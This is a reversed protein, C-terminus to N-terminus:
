DIEKTYDAYSIAITVHTDPLQQGIVVNIDAPTDVPNTGHGKQATIIRGPVSEDDTPIQAVVYWGNKSLVDLYFQTVDGVSQTSTYAAGHVKGAAGRGTFNNTGNFVADPPAPITTPFGSPMPAPASSNSSCAGLGFVLVFAAVTVVVARNGIRM